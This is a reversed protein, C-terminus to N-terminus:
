REPLFKVPDYTQNDIRVEFHLHNGYSVGTSGMKGIQQGKFVMEGYTVDISSLHAYLTSYGDAHEIRVNYGYSPTYGAWTVKGGDAAYIPTGKANPLDIGLHFEKKGYIVRWGYPSSIGTPAECPWIFTGTPKAEPIPKAGVMVVKDTAPTIIVESVEERGVVNGNEDYFIDYTVTREGNKGRTVIKETGVYSNYDNVTKTQYPIVENILITDVFNYELATDIEVSSAGLSAGDVTGLLEPAAFTLASIRTIVDTSVPPIYEKASKEILPNLIDNIEGLSYLMSRLCPQKQIRIHNTIEVKGFSLESAALIQAEINSILSELKIKSEHAAVQRGDVYLMYAECFEDEYTAWIADTLEKESVYVPNHIRVLEYSVDIDPIVAGDTASVIKEEVALKADALDDTSLVFGCEAGNVKAMVAVDLTCTYAVYAVTAICTLTPLVGCLIKRLIGGNHRPSKRDVQKHSM